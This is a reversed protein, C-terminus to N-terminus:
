IQFINVFNSLFKLEKFGGHAVEKNEGPFLGVAKKEKETTHDKKLRGERVWRGKTHPGVLAKTHGVIATWDTAAL